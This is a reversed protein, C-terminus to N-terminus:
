RFKRARAHCPPLAQAAAPQWSVRVEQHSERAQERQERRELFDREQRAHSAESQAEV